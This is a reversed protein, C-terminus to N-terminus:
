PAMTNTSVAPQTLWAFVVNGWTFRSAASSPAFRLQRARRMAERDAAAAGSSALLRVSDPVGDSDVGVQVVSSQVIESLALPPVPLGRVIPRQRLAGELSVVSERVPATNLPRLSSFDASAREVVPMAVAVSATVSQVTVEAPHAMAPITLWSPSDLTTEVVPPEPAPLRGTGASFGREHAVAFLAPELAGLGAMVQHEGDTGAISHVRAEAGKRVPMSAPPRASLFWLCLGQLTLVGLM